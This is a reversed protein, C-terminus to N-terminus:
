SVRKLALVAGPALLALAPAFGPTKTPSPRSQTGSSPAAPVLLASYAQTQGAIVTVPASIDTYGYMQILLAHVGPALNPVTAPSVGQRVGDITIVAGPPTTTISLSGTLPLTVPPVAAPTDQTIVTTVVTVKPGSGGLEITGGM